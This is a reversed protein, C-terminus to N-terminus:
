ERLNQSFRLKQKEQHNKKALTALLGNIIKQKIDNPDKQKAKLIKAQLLLM